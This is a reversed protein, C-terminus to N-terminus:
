QELERVRVGSLKVSRGRNELDTVILLRGPGSVGVGSPLDVRFLFENDSPIVDFRLRGCDGFSALDCTVSMQTEADDDSRATISFQATKGALMELTGPPVEIGVVSDADPSTIRAFRGFPDGDIAASANGQLSITTPDSPEFLTIWGSEVEGAAAIRAPGSSATGPNGAGPFSENELELPPNPVSTDREAETQLAGTSMVWWAGAGVLAVLVAVTLLMAFPARRPRVRSGRSARDDGAFDDFQESPRRRPEARLHAATDPEPAAQAPKRRQQRRGTDRREAAIVPERQEPRIRGPRERPPAVRGDARLDPAINLAGPDSYLAEYEAETTRIAQALRQKQRKRREPDAETATVREIAEIASRYVQQRYAPDSADGKSLRSRLAQELENM